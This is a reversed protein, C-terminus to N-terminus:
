QITFIKMKVNKIKKFKKFNIKVIEVGYETRLIEKSFM